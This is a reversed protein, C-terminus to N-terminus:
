QHFVEQERIFDVNESFNEYASEEKEDVKKSDRHILYAYLVIALGSLTFLLSKVMQPFGLYPLLAVWIGMGLIIKTKSM